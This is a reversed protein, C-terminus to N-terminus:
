LVVVSFADLRHPQEFASDAIDFVDVFIFHVLLIGLPFLLLLVLLHVLVIIVLLVILIIADNELVATIQVLEEALL